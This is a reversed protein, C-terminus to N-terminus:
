FNFLNISVGVGVYPRIERGDTGYGLQLGVSYKKPKQPMIMVDIIKDKNEIIKDKKEIIIDKEVIISDNIIIQEKLNDVIETCEEKNYIIEKEKEKLIEKIVEKEKIKEVIVEVEKEVEIIEKKTRYVVKEVEIVEADKKNFYHWLAYCILGITIIILLTNIKM